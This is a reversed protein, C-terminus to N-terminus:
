AVAPWALADVENPDVFRVFCYTMATVVLVALAYARAEQGYRIVFPSVALILGAVLATGAGHLRRALAVLVPVALAISVASMGRLGTESSGFVERWLHLLAHYASMNPEITRAIHAHDRLPAGSIAASFGEDYWLSRADIRIMALVFALLAELGAM